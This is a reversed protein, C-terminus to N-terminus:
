QKKYAIRPVRAPFRKSKSMWSCKAVNRGSHRILKPSNNERPGYKWKQRNCNRCSSVWNEVGHFGGYAVPIIHDIVLNQAKKKKDCYGCIYKDRRLVNLRDKKSISKRTKDRHAM